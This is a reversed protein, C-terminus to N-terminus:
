AFAGTDVMKQSLVTWFDQALGGTVYRYSMWAYGDVGWSTGWSNRILLAGKDGNIDLNDDYGAAVIAHGGHLKSNRKPYAVLGNPKPTMFEAYVPFGFMCPFGGALFTKINKLVESAPAGNPDLRYYKLSQFNTAYAYCFATPEVEFASNTEEPRGDYPWAAEPPAGFCALAKMATRIYAGTDGRWGLLNRTVKYVFLRSLDEHREFAKRQFYEILAVAANATCSGLQGQDEIPSFWQRLDARPAIVPAPAAAALGKASKGMRAGGRYEPGGTDMLSALKPVATQNLLTSIDEHEPTFDQVHPIDPVWGLGRPIETM